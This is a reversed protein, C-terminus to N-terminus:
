KGSRSKTSRKEKGAKQSKQATKQPAQKVSESQSRAAEASALTPASVRSAGAEELLRVMPSSDLFHKLALAAAIGMPRGARWNQVTRKSQGVQMGLEASVIGLSECVRNVAQATTLRDATAPDHFHVADNGRAFPHIFIQVIHNGGGTPAAPKKTTKTAMSCAYPIRESADVVKELTDRNLCFFVGAPDSGGPCLSLAMRPM